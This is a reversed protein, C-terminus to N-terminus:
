FSGSWGVSMGGARPIFSPADIGFVRLRGTAFKASVIGLAAGAAVDSFWHVNDNIRSLATGTALTYLGVSAWSNHIEQSLSTALAFAMATHGSPFSSHRSLPFFDDHDIGPESPRGRGAVFKAGLAVAGTTLVASTVRVGAHTLGRNGSILGAAVLGLSATAYVEPQGFHRAASALDNTISGRNDQAFRQVPPDLATLAAIGGLALAGEWWTLGGGVAPTPAPVIEQAAAVPPVVLVAAALLPGPWCRVLRNM